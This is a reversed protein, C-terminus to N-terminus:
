FPIDIEPEAHNQAQQPQGEGKKDLLKYDDILVKLTTRKTGDKGQWEELSAKGTVYVMAGKVLGEAYSNVKGGFMSCDVWHTTQNDGWGTNVAVSFRCVPTGKNTAGTEADRGLHGVFTYQSM